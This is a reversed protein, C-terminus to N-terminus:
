ASKPIGNLLIDYSQETQQVMQIALQLKEILWNCRIPLNRALQDVMSISRQTSYILPIVM